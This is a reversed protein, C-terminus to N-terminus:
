PAAAVPPPDMHAIGDFGEFEWIVRCDGDPTSFRSDVRLVNWTDGNVLLTKDVEAPATATGPLPGVSTGPAKGVLRYGDSDGLDVKMVESVSNMQAFATLDVEPPLIPSPVSVWPENKNARSYPTGEYTISEAETYSGGNMGVFTMSVAPQDTWRMTISGSECSGGGIESDGRLSSVTSLRNEAGAMIEEAPPPPSEFCGVMSLAVVTLVPLYALRTRRM